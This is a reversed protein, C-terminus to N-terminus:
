PNSEAGIIDFHREIANLMETVEEPIEDPFMQLALLYYDEKPVSIGIHDFLKPLLTKSVPANALYEHQELPNRFVAPPLEDKLYERARESLIPYDKEIYRGIAAPHILYSEIEYRKWRRIELGVNTLERDPLNRNDGDLILLGKIKPKIARLAFFHNRAERPNRGRNSRWFPSDEFWRALDHGLVEAWAKLLNFDSNGELYLIGPSSESFLIETAPLMKIAERVQDRDTDSVLLHPPGYFSLIHNPSTNDILV